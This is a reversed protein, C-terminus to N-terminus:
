LVRKVHSTGVMVLLWLQLMVFGSDWENIAILDTRIKLLYLPLWEYIDFGQTDSIPLYADWDSDYQLVLNKSICHAMMPGCLLVRAQEVSM